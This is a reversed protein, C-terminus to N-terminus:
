REAVAHVVVSVDVDSSDRVAWLSNGEPLTISVVNTPDDIKDTSVWEDTSLGAQTYSLKCSTSPYSRLTVARNLEAAPVLEIPTTSVSITKMFFSM